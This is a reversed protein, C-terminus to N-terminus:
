DGQRPQRVALWALIGLFAVIAGGGIWRFDIDGDDGTDGAVLPPTTSIPDQAAATTTTVPQVASDTRVVLVPGADQSPITVLQGLEGTEMNATIVTGADVGFLYGEDAVMYFGTWDEIIRDEGGVMDYIHAASGTTDGEYTYTTMGLTDDTLWTPVSGEGDAIVRKFVSEGRDDVVNLVTEVSGDGDDYRTEVIAVLPETPHPTMYIGVISNPPKSTLTTEEGTELDLMVADGDFGAQFVVFGNGIVGNVGTIEVVEEGQPTVQVLTSTADGSYFIQISSGDPALCALDSPWSTQSQGIDHIAAVEFTTTDWLVVHSETMQMVFEGGPCAEILQTGSFESEDVPPILDTVHHGVDDLVTLRPSSWGNSVILKPIGTASPTPGEMAALLVDPDVQSCLGGNLVGNEEYIAAGTRMNQDWFEFGCAAGDVSSHVEIVEGLDGKVWTEVEFVYIAGQGGFPDQGGDIKEVMTGVFVAESQDVWEGLHGPSACSCEEAPIGLVPSIAAAILAAVVAVKVTRTM